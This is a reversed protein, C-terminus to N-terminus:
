IVLSKIRDRGRRRMLGLFRPLAQTYLRYVVPRVPLDWAGIHRVVQGGFGEKFRYVGLLPDSGDFVDPAGWLDYITCGNEKARRMAEWQLLHNPMKDRHKTRSMGYLYWAKRAFRFIVLAASMEGEVEAILAEALGAQIFTSWVSRYYEEERIVFGDRISTEAYMQYLASLDAQDGKRITVGKREALRINYRTKQKMSALLDDLDPELDILMTNRFQIQENSFHWGTASLEEAVVQGLSNEQFDTQGPVGIGLCVDPDIKIFIAREKRALDALDKLVRRRLLSDGWDFLPGKPAYLVRLPLDVGSVLLSRRLVLAAAVTHGQVDQWTQHLPRWGFKSKVQGWEWTQLIHAGPLSVILANWSNADM